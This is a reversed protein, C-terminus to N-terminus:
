GDARVSMRAVFEKPSCRNFRKFLKYFQAISPVGAQLAAEAISIDRTLLLREAMKIRKRNVYDVFSCGMASRFYRIFYHYSFNLLRSVEEVTIREHLHRDVYDLAPRLRQLEREASAPLLGEDDHRVFLWLLRQIASGLALAYGRARGSYEEYMHAILDYIERRVEPKDRLLGNLRELSAAGDGLGYLYPLAVSEMHRGLDVQLVVFRVPSAGVRHTRHLQSAGFLAVDGPELRMYGDQTQMGMGGEIMALLEVEKHHHWPGYAERAPAPPNMGVEWIKMYLLPHGYVVVEERVPERFDDALNTM